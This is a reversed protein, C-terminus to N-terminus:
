MQCSPGLRDVNKELVNLFSELYKQEVERLTWNEAGYLARSWIGCKVTEEKFKLSFNALPKRRTLHQNRLKVHVVQMM